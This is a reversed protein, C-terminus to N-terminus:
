VEISKNESGPIIEVNYLVDPRKEKEVKNQKEFEKIKKHFNPETKYAIIGIEVLSEHVGLDLFANRLYRYEDSDRYEKDFKFTSM